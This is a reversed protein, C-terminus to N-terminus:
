GRVVIFLDSSAYVNEPPQLDDDIIEFTLFYSGAPIGRPISMRIPKIIDDSAGLRTVTGQTYQFWQPSEISFPNGDPGSIPTFRMKFNLVTDKKNKVGVAIVKSSGKEIEVETQPFAVKKEGSILDERIKDRIQQSIEGQVEGLGQFQKRIFTLGLGLLTLALVVIVIAQISIELSGKKSNAKKHFKM